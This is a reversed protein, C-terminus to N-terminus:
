NDKGNSVESIFGELYEVKMKLKEIEKERTELLTSKWQNDNKLELLMEALICIANQYKDNM